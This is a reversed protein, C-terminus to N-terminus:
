WCKGCGARADGFVGASFTWACAGESVPRQRNGHSAVFVKGRPVQDYGSNVHIQCEVILNQCNRSTGYICMDVSNMRARFRLTATKIDILNDM